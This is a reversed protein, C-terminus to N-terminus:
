GRGRDQHVAREEPRGAQAGEGVRQGGRPVRRDQQVQPRAHDGGRHVLDQDAREGVRDAVRRQGTRDHEDAVAAGPRQQGGEGVGQVVANKAQHEDVGAQGGRAAAPALGHGRGQVGLQAVTRAVAAEGAPVM